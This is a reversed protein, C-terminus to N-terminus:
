FYWDVYDEESSLLAPASEPIGYEFKDSNQLSKVLRLIGPISRGNSMPHYMMARLIGQDDIIFVSPVASAAGSAHTEIMGYVSAVKICLDEVVPFRIEVGYREKIDRIWALHVYNSDLSVGLLDCGARQFEEYHQAFAILETTCVQTFDAPYAFLVLWRGRYDSLRRIGQTTRAEFDPAPENLRLQHSDFPITIVKAAERTNELVSKLAISM